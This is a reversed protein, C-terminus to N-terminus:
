DTTYMSDSDCNKTLSVTKDCPQLQVGILSLTSIM